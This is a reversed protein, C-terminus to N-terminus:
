HIRMFRQVTQEIRIVRWHQLLSWAETKESIMCKSRWVRSGLLRLGARQVPGSLGGLDTETDVIPIHVLRRRFAKSHCDCRNKGHRAGQSM